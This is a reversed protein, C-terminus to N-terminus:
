KLGVKKNFIELQALTLYEWEGMSSYTVEQVSGCTKCRRWRNYTEEIKEGMYHSEYKDTIYEWEHFHIWQSLFKKVINM